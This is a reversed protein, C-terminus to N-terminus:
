KTFTWGEKGILPVFRFGQKIDTYYKQGRRTVIHIDQADLSGVPVVLKGGDALQELLTKPVEPAAATIIIGDYPAFEAWGITGDGIKSAVKYKLRDLTKQAELLLEPIREITYVKAGMEALIAAQYGSGTGIELIKSGENVKLSETMFAVTYPQSITQNSGIPLAIDQYARKIFAQQVFQHREVKAIAELVKENKIGKSVLTNILNIRDEDFNIYDIM